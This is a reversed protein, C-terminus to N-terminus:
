HEPAELRLARGPREHQVGQRLGSGVLLLLAKHGPLEQRFVLSGKVDVNCSHAPEEGLLIRQERVPANRGQACVERGMNERHIDHLPQVCLERVVDAGPCRTGVEHVHGSLAQQLLCRAQVGLSSALPWQLLYFHPADAVDLADHHRGSEAVQDNHRHQIALTGRTRRDLRCNANRGLLRQRCVKAAPVACNTPAM